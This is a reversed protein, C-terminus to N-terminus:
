EAPPATYHVRLKNRVSRRSSRLSRQLREIRRLLYPSFHHGYRAWLDPRRWDDGTVRGRCTEAGCGCPFEDYPSGDTMAYDYTIEEGASIDRMAVLCIQGSLGANPDCSHNICDAAEHENLSALYLGDEVQLSYRRLGPPLLDLGDLTVLKGTWVAILEGTPIDELAVVGRGGKAHDSRVMCKPSLFSYTATSAGPPSSASSGLEAHGSPHQEPNAELVVSGAGTQAPAAASRQPPESEVVDDLATHTELAPSAPRTSEPIM